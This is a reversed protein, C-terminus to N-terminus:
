KAYLQRTESYLFFLLRFSCASSVYLYLNRLCALCHPLTSWAAELKKLRVSKQYEQGDFFFVFGENRCFFTWTGTTEVTVQWTGAVHDIAKLGLPM